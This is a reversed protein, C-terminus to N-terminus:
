AHVAALSLDDGLQWGRRACDDLFRRLRRRVFAGRASKFALLESVCEALPVPERARWTEAGGPATVALAGDSMACVAVCDRMPGEFVEFPERSAETEKWLVAGDAASVRWTTVLKTNGECRAFALAREPSAIYSVYRPCGRAYTIERITITGCRSAVAVVGDGYCSAIWRGGSVRVAALTADLAHPDLGLSAACAAAREVAESYLAGFAPLDFATMAAFPRELARVLLRAGVDTDPSSSCGDALIAYPGGGAAGAVAYDQCVDHGRGVAFGCDAEM